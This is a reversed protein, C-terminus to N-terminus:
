VMHTVGGRRVSGAAARATRAPLCATDIVSRDLPEVAFLPGLRQALTDLRAANRAVGIVAIGSHILGKALLEGFAGTAGVLLSLGTLHVRIRIPM